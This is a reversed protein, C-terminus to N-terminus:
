LQAAMQRADAMVKEIDITPFRGNEYLVRGQCLTMCVDKGTTAFALAAPIDHCPVQSPADLRVLAMDADAGVELRHPTAMKLVELAPLATPDGTHLKQLLSAWKIEEFLDLTNNSAAGDTGLAVNVGRARMQTVPAIGSALKANSVPNHAVTVGHRALLDMDADTVWCAHAALAPVDFVGHSALAATPTLGYQRLCNEHETRTESLHTHLHLGETAAWEAVQRWVRPTSTYVAHLGAQVTIRGHPRRAFSTLLGMTERFCDGERLNYNNDFTLVANSLNAKMGAEDVAQAIPELPSYMDNFSTTGSALMEAMALLTGTRIAGPIAEMKEEAPFIHDFLWTELAADNAYGRLLTMAAHTHANHLGPMLVGGHGDITRTAAEAPAEQSLYSIRPGTVGVFANRLVPADAALTLAHINKFLLDM